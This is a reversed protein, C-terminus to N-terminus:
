ISRLESSNYVSAGDITARTAWKNELQKGDGFFLPEKRVTYDMKALKIIEELNNSEVKSGVGDFFNNQRSYQLIGM